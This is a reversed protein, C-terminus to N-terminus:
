RYLELIEDLRESMAAELGDQPGLNRGLKWRHAWYGLDRLFRRLPRTSLDGALFGPLLLVPHGDGSPQRRLWRRMALTTLLEGAARGM